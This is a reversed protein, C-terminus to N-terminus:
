VPIFIASPKRLNTTVGDSVGRGDGTTIEVHGYDDSYKYMGRDFVIVCGAPLDKVNVSNPSIEKFHSNKRLIGTMQYGHGSKYAGLGADRITAKVYLACNSTFKNAPKRQSTVRKSNPDIVFSRNKMALNALREGASANYGQMSFKTKNKNTLTFSDGVSSSWNSSYNPTVANNWSVNDWITNNSFTMDFTNMPTFSFLSPMSFNNFYPFSWDNFMTTFASLDFFSPMFSCSFTPSFWNNWGSMFNSMNLNSFNNIFTM